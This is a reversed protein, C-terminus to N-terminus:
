LRPARGRPAAAARARPPGGTRPVPKVTAASPRERIRQKAHAVSGSARRAWGPRQAWPAPSPHRARHRGTRRRPYRPPRGGFSANPEPPTRRGSWGNGHAFGAADPGGDSVLGAATPPSSRSVSVFSRGRGGVASRVRPGERNPHIHLAGSAWERRRRPAAPVRSPRRAARRAVFGARRERCFSVFAVGRPAVRSTTGGWRGCGGLNAGRCGPRSSEMVTGAAGGRSAVAAQGPRRRPGLAHGDSDLLVAPGWGLGVECGACIKVGM